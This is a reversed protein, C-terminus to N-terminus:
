RNPRPFDSGHVARAMQPEKGPQPNSKPGLTLATKGSVPCVVKRAMGLEHAGIAGLGSGIQPGGVLM